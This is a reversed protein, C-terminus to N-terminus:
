LPRRLFGVSAAATGNGAVIPPPLQTKLVTQPAADVAWVSRHGASDFIEIIDGVKLDALAYLAGPGAAASDVHGAIVAVGPQGPAPADEHETRDGDQVTGDWWGVQHIDAPITLAATGPDGVAGTPVLPAQVALAPIM